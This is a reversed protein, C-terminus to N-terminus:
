ILRYALIVSPNSAFSLPIELATRTFPHENPWVPDFNPVESNQSHIIIEHIILIHLFYLLVYPYHHHQHFLNTSATDYCYPPLDGTHRITVGINSRRSTRHLCPLEAVEIDIFYIWPECPAPGQCHLCYQSQAWNCIVM